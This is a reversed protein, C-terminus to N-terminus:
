CCGSETSCCTEEDSSDPLCTEMALCATEKNALSFVILEETVKFGSISFLKISGEQCEVQVEPDDTGLIEEAKDCIASLKKAPLRHDIDDAVWIQLSAFAHLRLKGGCDLFRKQTRGVETIHAHAPVSDGEPLVFALNRDSFANLASRFAGLRMPRGILNVRIKERQGIEKTAIELRLADLKEFPFSALLELRRHIQQSVQWFEKEQEEESGEFKAPDPSPWHAVIPKGPWVPCTEKADDCLTIVFDFQQDGLEEWSKSRATSVDLQYQKSLIKLALPHPSPKPNSGASFAKFTDPAIKRLLYEALISRASNGTCLFLINFPPKKSNM